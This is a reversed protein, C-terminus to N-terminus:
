FILFSKIKQLLEEKEEETGHDFVWHCNRCLATLNNINNIESVLATDPFDNVDRIHCIEVHRSYGCNHCVYSRGSEKYTKRARKGIYPQWFRYGGVVKKIEGKTIIESFVNSGRQRHAETIKESKVISRCDKCFRVKWFGNRQGKGTRKKYQVPKQCRECEGWESISTKKSPQGEWRNVDSNNYIAACTHSCFKKRRTSSVKETQKVEIVKKCQLCFNPNSYYDDLRRQRLVQGTAKGANRRAKSPSM